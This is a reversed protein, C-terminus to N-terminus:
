KYQDLWGGTEFKENPDYFRKGAKGYIDFNRAMIFNLSTKINRSTKNRSLTKLYRSGGLRYEEVDADEDDNKILTKFFDIQKQTLAHGHATGDELMAKAKDPSPSGGGAYKDLWGGGKLQPYETVSQGPFSYEMGPYMMQENGLNDVGLVPYNVGKMTIDGSPIKTIQGPYKWQGEPDLIVDKKFPNTKTKQATSIVKIEKSNLGM